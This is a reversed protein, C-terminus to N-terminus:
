SLSRRCHDRDTPATTLDHAVIIKHQTDVATQVNYGVLVGMRGKQLLRADPDTRSIQKDPDALVAKQRQKLREM